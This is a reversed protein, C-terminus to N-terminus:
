MQLRVNILKSNKFVKKNGKSIPKANDEAEFTDVLKQKSMLTESVPERGSSEDKGEKLKNADKVLEPIEPFYVNKDYKLLAM